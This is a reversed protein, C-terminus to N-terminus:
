TAASPLCVLSACLSAIRIAPESPREASTQRNFLLSPTMSVSALRSPGNQRVLEGGVGLPPDITREGVGPGASNTSAQNLSREPRGISPASTSM